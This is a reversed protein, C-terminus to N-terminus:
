FKKRMTTEPILILDVESSFTGDKLKKIMKTKTEVKKTLSTDPFVCPAEPKGPSYVVVSGGRGKMNRKRKDLM